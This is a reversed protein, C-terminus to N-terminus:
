IYMYVICGRRQSHLRPLPPSVPSPPEVLTEAVDHESGAAVVQKPSPETPVPEAVETADAEPASAAPVEKPKKDKSTRKKPPEDCCNKLIDLVELM